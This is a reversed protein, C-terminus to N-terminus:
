PKPNKLGDLSAEISKQNLLLNLSYEAKGGTSLSDLLCWVLGCFSHMYYIYIYIYIPINITNRIYAVLYAPVYICM